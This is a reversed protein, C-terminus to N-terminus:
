FDDPGTSERELARWNWDGPQQVVPRWAAALRDARAADDPSLRPRSTEVRKGATANGRKAALSYLAVAKASDAAVTTRNDCQVALAYLGTPDGTRAASRLSATM